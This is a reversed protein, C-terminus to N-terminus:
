YDSLEDAKFAFINSKTSAALRFGIDFFRHDPPSTARVTTRIGMPNFFWSGGRIGKSDGNDPGQPNDKPSRRYYSSDYWDQVWEWVNGTMDYLGLANPEKMKVPHSRREANAGYWAYNGLAAEENTGAWREKKGGSRATYEWEAESPLRYSKKTIHNLKNIFTQTDDWSITEVPCNDCDKFRSPNNGMVQRWLLQTIEVESMLFDEICTEHPPIENPKGEGFTDGM